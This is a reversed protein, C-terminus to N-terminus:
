ATFRPSFGLAANGNGLKGFYSRTSSTCNGNTDLGGVASTIGLLQSGSFLPGGSDGPIVCATTQIMDTITVVTGNEDAINVNMSFQTITGSTLGTTIGSKQVAMGAYGGGGVTMRQCDSSYVYVCNSLYNYATNGTTWRIDEADANGSFRRGSVYGLLYGAVDPNSRGAYVAASPEFCHGATMTANAPTGSVTGLITATCSYVLDGSAAQLLVGGRTPSCYTQNACLGVALPAAGNTGAPRTLDVKAESRRERRVAFKPLEGARVVVDAGYRARIAGALKDSYNALTITVSGGAADVGSSAVQAGLTNRGYPLDAFIQRARANLTQFTSGDASASAAVGLGGALLGTIAAAAARM